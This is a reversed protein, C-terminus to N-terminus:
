LATLPMDIDLKGMQGTDPDYSTIGLCKYNGSVKAPEVKMEGKCDDAIASAGLAAVALLACAIGPSRVLWSSM